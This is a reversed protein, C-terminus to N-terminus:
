KTKSYMRSKLLADHRTQTNLILYWYKQINLFESLVGGGLQNKYKRLLKNECDSITYLNQTFFWVYSGFFDIIQQFLRGKMGECHWFREPERILKDNYDSIECLNQICLNSM